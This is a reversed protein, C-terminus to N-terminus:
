NADVGGHRLPYLRSYGDTPTDVTEDNVFFVLQWLLQPGSAHGWQEEPLFPWACKCIASRCDPATVTVATHCSYHIVRRDTNTAHSREVAEAAGKPVILHPLFQMLPFELLGLKEMMTAVTGSPMKQELAGRAELVRCNYLQVTLMSHM